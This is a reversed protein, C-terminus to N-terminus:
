RQKTYRIRKDRQPRSYEVPVPAYDIVRERVTEYEITEYIEEVIEERVVPVYREGRQHEIVVVVGPAYGGGVYGGTYGGSYGTGRAYAYGGHGGVYGPAAYAYADDYGYDYGGGQAYGGRRDDYDHYYGYDDGTREYREGWERCDRWSEDGEARGIASGVAAGAIGGVGAGILSGGLRSGDGAVENGLLAGGAGGILGGIVAGTDSRRRRDSLYARCEREWDAQDYRARPPPSSRVPVPTYDPRPAYYQASAPAALGVFSAVGFVFLLRM